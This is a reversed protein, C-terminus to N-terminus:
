DSRWLFLLYIAIICCYFAGAMMNSQKKLDVIQSLHKNLKQLERKVESDEMTPVSTNSPGRNSVEEEVASSIPEQIAGASLVQIQLGRLRIYRDMWEFYSCEKLDQFPSCSVRIGL